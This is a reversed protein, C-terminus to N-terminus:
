AENEQQESNKGIMGDEEQWLLTERDQMQKALLRVRRWTWAKQAHSSMVDVWGLLVTTEEVRSAETVLDEKDMM